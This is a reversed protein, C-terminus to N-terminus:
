YEYDPFLMIAPGALITADTVTTMNTSIVAYVTGTLTTPLKAM